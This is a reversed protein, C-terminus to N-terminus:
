KGGYRKVEREIIKNGVESAVDYPDRERSVVSDLMESTGPDRNPDFIVDLHIAIREQLIDVIENRFRAREREKLEGSEGLYARHTEVMAWLERVGEGTTANTKVVPPRWDRADKVSTVHCEEDVSINETLDLMSEIEAVLREAGEQDMKNVVFIDHIEMLGAKFTQIEDGMGPVTLVLTTHATKNVDIESQGVGVTEVIIYDCGYADLICIADKTARAIGGLQGRNAMSRIFVLDSTFHDKMRIRDGLLAGGSFPSTPDVAVVGVKLNREVLMEVICNVLSSKGAGPAGTVGIVYAHGTLPFLLKSIARATDIDAEALSILRAVARREGSRLRRVLDDLTNM